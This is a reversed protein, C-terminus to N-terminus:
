KFDWIGNQLPTNRQFYSPTLQPKSNYKYAFVFAIAVLILGTYVFMKKQKNTM